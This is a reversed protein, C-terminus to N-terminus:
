VLLGGPLDCRCGSRDGCALFISRGALRNMGFVDRIIQAGGALAAVLKAVDMASGGGVGLVAEPETSKAVALVEEFLSITPEADIKSFVTVAAGHAELVRRFEGLTGLVPSSTVLLIRRFGRQATEEACQAACGNGFVIQKPQLLTVPNM